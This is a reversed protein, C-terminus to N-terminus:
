PLAAPRGVIQCSNGNGVGQSQARQAIAPRRMGGQALSPRGNKWCGTSDLGYVVVIGELTHKANIAFMADEM